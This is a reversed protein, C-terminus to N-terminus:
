QPCADKVVEIAPLFVKSYDKECIAGQYSHDFLEAFTSLGPQLPNLCPNAETSAILVVVIDDYGGVHELLLSSAFYPDIDQVGAVNPYTDTVIVLVLLAGGGIFGENCAGENTLPPSVASVIAALPTDLDTGGTGLTAACTFATSLVDRDTM